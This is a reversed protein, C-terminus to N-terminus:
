LRQQVSKQMSRQAAVKPHVSSAQAFHAAVKPDSLASYNLRPRSIKRKVAARFPIKLTGVLLHHDSVAMEACGNVARYVRVDSFLSLSPRRTLIFDIVLGKSNPLNGWFTCQHSSKHQFFSNTVCLNLSDCLQLLDKGAQNCTGHGHPGLVPNVWNQM